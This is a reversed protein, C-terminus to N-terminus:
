LAITITDLGRKKLEKNYNNLRTYASITGVPNNTEVATKLLGYTENATKQLRNDTWQGFNNKNNLKQIATMQAAEVSFNKGGIKFSQANDTPANNAVNEQTAVNVRTERVNSTSNNNPNFGYSLATTIVEKPNTYVKKISDVAEVSLDKKTLVNRDLYSIAKRQMSGSIPIVDSKETVNILKNGNLTYKATNVTPEQEEITDAELTTTATQQEVNKNSAITEAQNEAEKKDNLKKYLTDISNEKDQIEKALTDKTQETEQSAGVYTANNKYDAFQLDLHGGTSNESPNEYEDLVKIGKSRCYEIFKHRTEANELGNGSVDVKWGNGHSYEGGQHINGDDGSTVILEKGTLNKFENAIDGLGNLTQPKANVLSVSDGNRVWTEGETELANIAQGSFEKDTNVGNNISNYTNDRRDKYTSDYGLMANHMAELTGGNAIAEDVVSQPISGYQNVVDAYYALAKNNTLGAERGSDIYSQTDKDELMDQAQRGEKSDLLAQLASNENGNTIRGVWSDGLNNLSEAGYESLVSNFREPNLDRISSLLDRARNEHWQMKGISLGGNDNGNVSGYDGENAKIVSKAIDVVNGGSNKVNTEQTGLPLTEINQSIINLLSDVETSDNGLWTKDEEFTGGTYGSPSEEVSGVDVNTGGNDTIGLYKRNYTDQGVDEGRMGNRTNEDNNLSVNAWTRNAESTNPNAIYERPTQQKGNIIRDAGMSIASPLFGTLAGVAGSELVDQDTVSWDQGSAYKPIITQGAEQIGNIAGGIGYSKLGKAITSGNKGLVYDILADQATDTVTLLGLNSGLVKQEIKSAEQETKGKEYTGNAIANNIYDQRAGSAEFYSEPASQRVGLALNAGVTGAVNAVTEGFKPALTTYAKNKIATGYAENVPLMKKTAVLAAVSPLISGAGYALRRGTDEYNREFPEAINQGLSEINKNIARTFNGVLNDNKSDWEEDTLYSPKGAYELEHGINKIWQGGSALVGNVGARLYGEDAQEAQKAKYENYLKEEALDLSNKKLNQEAIDLANGSNGAM